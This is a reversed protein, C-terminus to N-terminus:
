LLFRIWYVVSNFLLWDCVLWCVLLVCVNLVCRLRVSGSFLCLLISSYGVLGFLSLCCYVAFLYVLGVSLGSVFWWFM